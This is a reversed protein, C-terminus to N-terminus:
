NSPLSTEPLGALKRMEYLRLCALEIVADLHYRDVYDSLNYPEWLSDLVLFEVQDIDDDGDFDRLASLVKRWGAVAQPVLVLVNALCEGRYVMPDRPSRGSGVDVAERMMRRADVMRFHLPDFGGPSEARRASLASEVAAEIVKKVEAYKRKSM